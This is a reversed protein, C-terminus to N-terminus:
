PERHLVWTRGTGEFGMSRYLRHATERQMGSELLVAQVGREVAATLADGMLHRGIGRGRVPETVVLDHVWALTADTWFPERWEMVCVGVPRGELEAIRSHAAGREVARLHEAYTRLVAAMRDPVPSRHSGFEAILRTVAEGDDPGITRLGVGEPPTVEPATVPELRFDVMWESFGARELTARAAAVAAGDPVQVQLRHSGRLRWEAVVAAALARGIGRGRAEPRVYLDSLWGEFTAFNLRRRFQLIALGAPSGDAVALFANTDASNVLRDFRDRFPAADDVAPLGRCARAMAVAAQLDGRGLPRLEVGEPPRVAIGGIPRDPNGLSM